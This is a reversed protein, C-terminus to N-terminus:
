ASFDHTDNIRYLYEVRHGPPSQVGRTICREFISPHLRRTLRLAVDGKLRILHLYKHLVFQLSLGRQIRTSICPPYQQHDLKRQRTWYWHFEADRCALRGGNCWVYPGVSQTADDMLKVLISLESFTMSCSTAAQVTPCCNSPRRTVRRGNSRM